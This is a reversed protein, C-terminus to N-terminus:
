NRKTAANVATGCLFGCMNIVIDISKAIAPPTPTGARTAARERYLDFAFELGEWTLGYMMARRFSGPCVYGLGFHLVFHSAAWLNTAKRVDEGGCSDASGCILNRDLVDPNDLRYKTYLAIFAAVAVVAADVRADCSMM